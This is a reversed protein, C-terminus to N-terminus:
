PSEEDEKGKSQSFLKPMKPLVKGFFDGMLPIKEKDVFNLLITMIFVFGFIIILTVHIFNM